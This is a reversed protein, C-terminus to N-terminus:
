QFTQGVSWHGQEIKDGAQTQPLFTFERHVKKECGALLFGQKCASNVQSYYYQEASVLAIILV